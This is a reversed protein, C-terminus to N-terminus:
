RDLISKCLQNDPKQEIMFIRCELVKKFCCAKTEFLEREGDVHCFKWARNTKEEWEEIANERDSKTM